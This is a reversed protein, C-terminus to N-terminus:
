PENADIWVQLAQWAADCGLAVCAFAGMKSASILYEKQELSLRATKARSKMEMVFTPSGPIIVDSAGKVFGGELKMMMVQGHSRKGENRIHIAIRFLDPKDRSLRNFFTAM